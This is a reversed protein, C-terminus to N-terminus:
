EGDDREVAEFLLCCNALAILIDPWWGPTVDSEKDANLHGVVGGPSAALPDYHRRIFCITYQKCVYCTRSDNLVLAM